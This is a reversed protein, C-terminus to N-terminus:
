RRGEANTARLAGLGAGAGAGFLTPATYGVDSGTLLKYLWTAGAALPAGIAGGQLFGLAPHSDGAVAGPGTVSDFLKRVGGGLQYTLRHMPDTTQGNHAASESERLSKIPSMAASKYLRGPRVRGSGSGTVMNGARWLPGPTPLQPLIGHTGTVSENDRLNFGMPNTFKGIIRAVENAPVRGDLTVKLKPLEEPM